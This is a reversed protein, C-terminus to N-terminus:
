TRGPAIAVPAGDRIRWGRYTRTMLTAQVTFHLKPSATLPLAICHLAAAAAAPLVDTPATCHVPVRAKGERM